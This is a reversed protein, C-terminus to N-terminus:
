TSSCGIIFLLCVNLQHFLFLCYLLVKTEMAPSILFFRGSDIKKYFVSTYFNLKNTKLAKKEQCKKHFCKKKKRNLLLYKTKSIQRGLINRDLKELSSKTHQGLRQSLQYM